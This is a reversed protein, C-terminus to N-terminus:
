LWFEIKFPSCPITRKTNLSMYFEIGKIHHLYVHMLLEDKKNM